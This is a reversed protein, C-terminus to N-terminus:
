ILSNALELIILPSGTHQSNVVYKDDIKEKEAKRFRQVLSMAFKEVGLSDRLLLFEVDGYTLNIEPYYGTPVFAGPRGGSFMHLQLIFLMQM